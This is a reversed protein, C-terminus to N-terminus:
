TASSAAPCTAAPTSSSSTAERKPMFQLTLAPGVVKVGPMRSVPGLLHPNRIGLRSLEGAATASGVEASLTDILAKPPRTIGPTHSVM